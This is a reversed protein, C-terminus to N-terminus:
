LGRRSYRRGEQGSRHDDDPRDGHDDRRDPPGATTSAATRNQPSHQRSQRRPTTHATDATGIASTAATAQASRRGATSTTSAASKAPITHAEQMPQPPVIPPGNISQTYVQYRACLVRRRPGRALRQRQGAYSGDGTRTSANAAGVPRRHHLLSGATGAPSRRGTRGQLRHRHHHQQQRHRHATTSDEAVCPFLGGRFCRRGAQAWRGGPRELCAAPIM